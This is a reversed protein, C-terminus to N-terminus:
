YGGRRWINSVNGSFNYEPQKRKLWGKRTMALWLLWFLIAFGLAYRATVTLPLGKSKKLTLLGYMVGFSLATIFLQAFFRKFIFVIGFWNMGAYAGSIMLNNM